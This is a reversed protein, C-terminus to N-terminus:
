WREKPCGSDIWAYGAMKDPTLWNLVAYDDECEAGADEDEGDQDDQDFDQDPADEFLSQQSPPTLLEPFLVAQEMPSTPGNAAPPTIPKPRRKPPAPHSIRWLALFLGSDGGYSRKLAAVVEDRAQATLHELAAARLRDEDEEDAGFDPGVLQGLRFTSIDLEDAWWILEDHDTEQWDVVKCWCWFLSGLALLRVAVRGRGAGGTYTTLGADSLRQWSDQAWALERGHSFLKFITRAAAQIEEWALTAQPGEPKQDM